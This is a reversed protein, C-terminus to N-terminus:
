ATAAFSRSRREILPLPKASPDRVVIASGLVDSAARVFERCDLDEVFHIGRRRGLQSWGALVGAAVQLQTANTGFTLGLGVPTDFGM